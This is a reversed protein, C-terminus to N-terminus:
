GRSLRERRVQDLRPFRERYALHLHCMACVELGERPAFLTGCAICRLGGIVVSDGASKGTMKDGEVDGPVQGCSDELDRPVERM